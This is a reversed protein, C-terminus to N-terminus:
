GAATAGLIIMLLLLASLIWDAFIGPAPDDGPEGRKDRDKAARGATEHQGASEMIKVARAPYPRSQTPGSSCQPTSLIRLPLNM